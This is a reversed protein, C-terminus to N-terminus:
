EGKAEYLFYSLTKTNIAISMKPLEKASAQIVGILEGSLNVVPGGSMGRESIADTLIDRERVLGVIGKSVYFEQGLPNGMTLISQGAKVTDALKLPKGACDTKLLALDTEIQAFVVDAMCMAGGSKKTFVTKSDGVVHQNTVIENDSIYFGSGTAGSTEIIVTSQLLMQAAQMGQQDETPSDADIPKTVVFFAVVIAIVWLLYKTKM